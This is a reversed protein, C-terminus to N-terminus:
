NDMLADLTWSKFMEIEGKKNITQLKLPNLHEYEIKTTFKIYENVVDIDNHIYSDINLINTKKLNFVPDSLLKFGYRFKISKEGNKTYYKNLQKRQEKSLCVGIGRQHENIVIEFPNPNNYMRLDPSMDTMLTCVCSPLMYVNEGNYYGRMSGYSQKYCYSMFNDYRIPKLCIDRFLKNEFNSDYINLEIEETIYIEAEDKDCNEFIHSKYHKLYGSSYNINENEPLEEVIIFETKNVEKDWETYILETEEKKLKYEFKEELEVNRETRWSMYVCSMREKMKNTFIDQNEYNKIDYHKTAFNKKIYIKTNKNNIIKIRKQNYEKNGNCNSIVTHYIDLGKKIFEIIDDCKYLMLTNSNNYYEKFYECKNIIDSDYNYKLEFIPNNQCCARIFDGVVALNDWNLESFINNIYNDGTNWINFNRLFDKLNVIGGFREKVRYPPNLGNKFDLEDDSVTVPFYPSMRINQTNFPYYLLESATDLNFVIKDDVNIDVGKNLEEQYMCLMSYGFIYRSYTAIDYMDDRINKIIEKNNIILSCLDKSLLFNIILLNRIKKDSIYKITNIIKKNEEIINLEYNYDILSLTNINPGKEFLESFLIDNKFSSCIINKNCSVSDIFRLKKFEEDKNGIKKNKWFQSEKLDRILKLLGNRTEENQECNFFDYYGLILFVEKSSINNKYIKLFSNISNKDINPLIILGVIPDLIYKDKNYPEIIHRDLYVCYKKYDEAILKDIKIIDYDEYSKNIEEETVNKKMIYDSKNHCVFFYYQNIMSNYNTNNTIDVFMPNNSVNNKYDDDNYLIFEKNYRIDFLRRIETSM